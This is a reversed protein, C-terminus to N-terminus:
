MEANIKEYIVFYSDSYISKYKDDKSILMNLKTSKGLIVHTIKYYRFKYNYDTSISSINIFDSFINRKEVQGNENVHENFEPAYLDARSDIFVPIGEFILYSGYNYENFLRIHEIDLNNKIFQAAEVPYSSVNVYKDDKKNKCLAMCIAIITLVTLITGIKGTIGLMFHLDYNKDLKSFIFDILKIFIPTGILLFLSVQRTSIFCLLILGSIMFLDCLKIKAKSFATIGIILSMIVLTIKNNILVLPLHESISKTTNGQMTKILYTYPTLGIPTIFGTFLCIVFILILWKINDKKEIIIKYPEKKNKQKTIRNYILAILYEAIYPIYLIFYFPWVAAHVNAIIIPIIVLAIGYVMKRNKIFQEIFFITLIFLIFTVLQARAAIYPKLFYMILITIFFSLVQHKTIKSSIFYILIGLISALVITSIYIGAFGWLNYIFYIVVDYAWHPYTYPLGEHWSFHDQMDIGNNKILEGIKITYFTDNQLTVPSIAFCIAIISIIAVINFIIIKKKNM